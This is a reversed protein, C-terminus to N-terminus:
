VKEGNDVKNIMKKCYEAYEKCKDKPCGCIELIGEDTKTKDNSWDINPIYKCNHKVSILKTYQTKYLCYRLLPRKMAERCNEAEKINDFMIWNFGRTSKRGYEKMYKIVDEKSKFILGTHNEFFVGNMGYANESLMLIIKNEKLKSCAKEINEDIIKWAKKEDTIGKRALQQVTCHSHGGAFICDLEGKNDLLKAFNLEYNTFKTVDNLDNVIQKEGNLFNIEINNNNTKDFDYIGVDLLSSVDHFVKSSLQEVSVLYKNFQEKYKRTNQNVPQVVFTFPMIVIERDSIELCKSAFKLHKTNDGSDGYPPNSLCIDFHEIGTKKEVEKKEM